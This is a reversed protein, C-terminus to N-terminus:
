GRYKLNATRNIKIGDPAEPLFGHNEILIVPHVVLPGREVNCDARVQLVRM